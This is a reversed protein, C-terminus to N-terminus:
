SLLDLSQLHWCLERWDLGYSKNDEQFGAVPMVSPLSFILCSIQTKSCANGSM